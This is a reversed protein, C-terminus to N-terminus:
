LAFDLRFEVHMRVQPKEFAMELIVRHHGAAEAKICEPLHDAEEEAPCASDALAAGNADALHFEGAHNQGRGPLEGVVDVELAHDHAPEHKAHCVADDLDIALEGEFHLIQFDAQEGVRGSRQRLGCSSRRSMIQGRGYVPSSFFRDASFSSNMLRTTTVPIPMTEDMPLLLCSTTADNRSAFDPM